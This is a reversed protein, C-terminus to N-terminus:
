DKPHGWCQSKKKCNCIIQFFYLKRNHLMDIERACQLRLFCCKCMRLLFVVAAAFMMWDIKKLVKILSFTLDYWIMLELFIKMYECSMMTSFLCLRCLVWWHSAEDTTEPAFGEYEGKNMMSTCLWQGDATLIWSVLFMLSAGLGKVGIAVAPWLFATCGDWTPHGKIMTLFRLGNEEGHRGLVHIKVYKLNSMTM